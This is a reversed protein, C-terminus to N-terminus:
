EGLWSGWPRLADINDFVIKTAGLIPIALVLGMGGWVWGWFLLGITVALPNLRLSRGILKPYMVNLAFVHLFCVAVSLFILDGSPIQGLAVTALPILALFLGMYPVLSLSGSLAGVVVFFPLGYLGFIAISVIVMFLGVLLNSVVYGRIMLSILGLTRYATHRHEMSFLMVTASRVHQQWSLMFYILFPAFSFSIIAHGVSDFGRTLLDNLPSPPRITLANKDDDSPTLPNLSEAQKRFTMVEERIRSSYKPLLHLFNVVQNYSAYTAGYVVLLLLAVAVLSALSRPLHFDILFDVVPALIFAALISILLVVFVLEAVYCITLLVGAAIVIEPWRPGTHVLPPPPVIPTSTEMESM